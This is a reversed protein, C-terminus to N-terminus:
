TTRSPWISSSRGPKLLARCPLSPCVEWEAPARAWWGPWDSSGEQRRVLRSQTTVAMRPPPFESSFTSTALVGLSQQGLGFRNQPEWMDCLHRSWSRESM